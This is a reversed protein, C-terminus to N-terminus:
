ERDFRRLDELYAHLSFGAVFAALLIGLILITEISSNAAVTTRRQNGAARGIAPRSLNLAKLQQYPKSQRNSWRVRISLPILLGLTNM